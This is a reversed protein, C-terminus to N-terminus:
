LLNRITTELAIVVPEIPELFLWVTIALWLLHLGVKFSVPSFRVFRWHSRGWTGVMVAVGQLLFFATMYGPLYESRKVCVIVFYEHALGSVLFVAFAGFYVHNRKALPLFLHRRFFGSVFLNWRHGWFDAPSRALFPARFVQHTSFGLLTSAGTVFDSLGSVMFYLEFAAAWESLPWSWRHRADLHVLFLLLVTKLLARSWRLLGDRRLAKRVALDSQWHTHPPIVFWVAFRWWSGITIASVRGSQVDVMKMAM